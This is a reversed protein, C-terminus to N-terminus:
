QGTPTGLLGPCRRVDGVVGSCGGAAARPGLVDRGNVAEILGAWRGPLCSYGCVGDPPCAPDILIEVPLGDACRPFTRLNWPRPVCSATVLVLILLALRM